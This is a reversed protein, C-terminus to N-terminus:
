NLHSSRVPRVNLGIARGEGGRGGLGVYCDQADFVLFWARSINDVDVSNSWYGGTNGVLMLESEWRAGSAPLFISNGNSATFLRGSVGNQTVWTTITYNRLERWQDATPIHWNDGLFVAAIDDEPLLATLGDSENYKTISYDPDADYYKYSYWDYYGKTETEGWAFYDGFCEPSGAGFNCTAWLTGSPLGLDVYDHDNLGGGNNETTFSKIEGYCYELGRLVYARVHYVTNPELGTITCVFPQNWTTTSLHPDEITPTLGTSWCVGLENLSLGQTVIVDGGCVATTTTIDQPTYTTVKVEDNPMDPPVPDDDDHNCSAMFLLFLASLAIALINYKRMTIIKNITRNNLDNKIRLVYQVFLCVVDELVHM